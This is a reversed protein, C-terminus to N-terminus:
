WSKLSTEWGRYAKSCGSAIVSITELGLDDLFTIVTVYYCTGTEYTKQLIFKIKRQTLHSDEFDLETRIRQEKQWKRFVDACRGVKVDQMIQQQFEEWEELTSANM